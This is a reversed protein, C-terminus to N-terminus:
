LIILGKGHAEAGKDALQDVGQARQRADALFGGLAHGQLQQFAVAATTHAQGLRKAQGHFPNAMAALAAGQGLLLQARLASIRAAVIGLQAHHLPRHIHIRHLLGTIATAVEHELPM